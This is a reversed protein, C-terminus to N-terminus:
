LILQELERQYDGQLDEHLSAILVNIKKLEQNYMNLILQSNRFKIGSKKLTHCFYIHLEAAFAKDDIYRCYKVIQRLIKRLSKKIYYLNADSNIESFLVDIELKVESVFNNKNHGEFLLYGLYEKNDKKYKALALCLDLLQKVSLEQLEKKIENINGTKM